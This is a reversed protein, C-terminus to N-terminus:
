SSAKSSYQQNGANFVSSDFAADPKSSKDESMYASPTGSRGRGCGLSQRTSNGTTPNTGKAYKCLAQQQPKDLLADTFDAGDIVADRFDSLTFITRSLDADTLNAEVLVARDFLTDSLTAGEFNAGAAMAKIFYAGQCNSGSFNAGKINASTFNSRRLDKNSFDEGSQNSAGFQQSTGLGFEGGQAAERKNLEAFAPAGSLTFSVAVAGIFAGASLLFDRSVSKSTKEAELNCVVSTKKNVQKTHTPLRIARLSVVSSIM